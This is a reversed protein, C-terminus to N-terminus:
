DGAAQSARAGDPESNWGLAETIAHFIYNQEV